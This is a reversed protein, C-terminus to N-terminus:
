ERDSVRGCWPRAAPRHGRQGGRLQAADIGPKVETGLGAMWKAATADAHRAQRLHQLADASGITTSILPLSGSTASM